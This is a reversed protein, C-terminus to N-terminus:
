SLVGPPFHAWISDLTSFSVQWGGLCYPSLLRLLEGLSM